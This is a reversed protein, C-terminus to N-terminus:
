KGGLGDFILFTALAWLAFTTLLQPATNWNLFPGRSRRVTVKKLLEVMGYPQPTKILRLMEERFHEEFSKDVQYAYFLGHLWWGHGFSLLFPFVAVVWCGIGTVKIKEAALAAIFSVM